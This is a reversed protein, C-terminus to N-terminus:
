SFQKQEEISIPVRSFTKQTALSNIVKVFGTRWLWLRGLQDEQM